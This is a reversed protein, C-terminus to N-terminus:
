LHVTTSDDLLDTCSWVVSMTTASLYLCDFVDQDILLCREYLFQLVLDQLTDLVLVAVMDNLLGDLPYWCLVDLKDDMGKGSLDLAQSSVGIATTDYLTHELVAFLGGSRRDQLLKM